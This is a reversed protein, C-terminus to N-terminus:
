YEDALMILLVRYANLRDETGYDCAESEYYDIKWFVKPLNPLEVAGFDHEGYPDDEPNFTDYNRVALFIAMKADPPLIHVGQTINCKGEDNNADTLIEKRFKDNKAQIRQAQCRSCFCNFAHRM